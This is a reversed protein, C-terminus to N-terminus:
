AARNLLALQNQLKGIEAKIALVEADVEQFGKVLVPILNTITTSYHDRPQDYRTVEPFIEYVHEPVFGRSRNSSNRYTYDVVQLQRLRGSVDPSLEVHHMDVRQPSAAVSVVGDTWVLGGILTGDGDRIAVAITTGVANDAGCQVIIGGRNANNGDNHFHANYGSPINSKSKVQGAAALTTGVNLGLAVELSDDTKLVNAIRRYLNVDSWHIDKGNTMLIDDALKLQGTGAGTTGVSLGGSVRVDTGVLRLLLTNDAYFDIKSKLAANSDSFVDVWARNATAGSEAYLVIRSIYTAPADTSILMVSDYSALQLIRLGIGSTYATQYGYVGGIEDSNALFGYSGAGAYFAGTTAIKIGDADISVAGGGAKILFDPDGGARYLFYDGDTYDGMFAGYIDSSVGAIGNLNGIHTHTVFTDPEGASITSWSRTRSYPGNGLVSAEWVGRSGSGLQGYDLAISGRYIVDASSYGTTTTTFTWSQEGGTLNSYNTVQGYVDAVILGGGSTDIVRLLVYDNAVFVAVEAYGEHDEVYLTATASTNPITFDRSVRARSQTIILAGALASYIDAIFAAVHLEDAYISRCDLHGPHSFGWGTGHLGAVFDSTRLAKGAEWSAFIVDDGTPNFLIDGAPALTVNGSTTTISEPGQFELTGNVDIGSNFTHLATWVFTHGKNVRVGNSGDFQLSGGSLNVRINNSSEELGYDSGILDTVDVSVQQTSLDIGDGATVPNHHAASNAAHAAVDVGDVNGTVAINGTVSLAGTATLLGHVELTGSIDGDGNIDLTHDPDASVDGVRLANEIRVNAVRGAFQNVISLHSTGDYHIDIIAEQLEIEWEAGELQGMLTDATVTDAYVTNLPQAASGINVTAGREKTISGSLAFGANNVLVVRYRERDSPSGILEVWVSSDNVVPVGMNRARIVRTLDGLLRVYVYGTRGEVEVRGAGNGLTGPVYSHLPEYRGLLGRLSDVAAKLLMTPSSM